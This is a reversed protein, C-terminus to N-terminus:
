AALHQKLAVAADCAAAPAPSIGAALLKRAAMHDMPANVSEVCVLREGVYHLLSFSGVTPNARRHCVATCSGAEVGASPLLGAMQLRLSGQESWFWPLAQYPEERGALTAFATRAQDNANQVSELRLRQGTRHDPFNACDGMALIHPDTSRLGVDVVIGNQCALGAAQALATEPEAGVALVLLAVGHRQGNVQLACLRQGQVEFGAVQVGLHLHIGSAHHTDRV